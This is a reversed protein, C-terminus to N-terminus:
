ADDSNRELFPAVIEACSPGAQQLVTDGISKVDDQYLERRYEWWTKGSPYSFINRFVGHALPEWPIDLNGFDNSLKIVRFNSVAAAFYHRLVIVEDVTLASQNCDKALVKALEEGFVSSSNQGSIAFQSTVIASQAILRNQQLEYVVLAAGVVVAILTLIHVSNTLKSNQM